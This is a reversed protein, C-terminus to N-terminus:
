LKGSTLALEVLSQAITADAEAVLASARALASNALLTEQVPTTGQELNALASDYSSKCARQLALAAERSALANKAKVYTKWVEAIVQERLLLMEERAASASAEALRVNNQEAFGSFVPWQVTLFAGYNQFQQNVQNIAATNNSTPSFQNYLAIADLALTPLRDARAARLRSEAAQVAAVQALLDPRHSLANRIHADLPEQLMGVLKNFDAPAIRLPTGPPIGAASALEVRSIEVLSSATVLDFASQAAAEEADQLEPETLLGRDFRAKAASVIERASEASVEAAQKQREAAQQAYFLETVSFILKQHADNFNLNAALQDSVAARQRHERGGFDFLLWQLGAGSLFNTYTDGLGSNLVMGTGTVQDVIASSGPVLNAAALAGGINDRGSAQFDLYGGGYSALVVLLPFYDAEALGTVIAAARAQEWAIRTTRNNSQAIDILRPLDVAEGPGPLRASKERPANELIRPLDAARQDRFSAEASPPSKQFPSLASCGAVTLTAAILAALRFM